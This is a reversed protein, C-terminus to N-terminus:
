ATTLRAWALVDGPSDTGVLNRCGCRPCRLDVVVEPLPPAPEISIWPGGDPLMGGCHLRPADDRATLTARCNGCRPRNAYRSRETM